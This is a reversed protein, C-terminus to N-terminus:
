ESLDAIVGNSAPDHCVLQLFRRWAAEFQDFGSVRHLILGDEDIFGGESDHYIKWTELDFFFMKNAPCYKDRVVPIGAFDVAQCWGKLKYMDGGYRKDPVLIKAVQRWIAHNCMILKPTGPSNREILDVMEQMLELTVERNVSSNSLSQAKWFANAATARNIGLYTGSASVIKSIGDIAQDESGQRFAYITGTDLNADNLVTGGGLTVLNKTTDDTDPVISAVELDTGGDTTAGGDETVDIIDGRKIGCNAIPIRFTSTSPTGAATVVGGLMGTGDQWMDYALAQALDEVLGKAEGELSKLESSSPLRTSKILAGDIKFTGYLRTFNAVAENYKQVGALPLTGTSSWGIGGTGATHLRINIAKGEAYSDTDKSLLQLLIRDRNQLEWLKPTYVERLITDYTTRTATTIAM